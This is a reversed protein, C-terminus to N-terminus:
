VRFQPHEQKSAPASKQAFASPCCSGLFLFHFSLIPFFFSQSLLYVCFTLDYILNYNNIIFHVFLGPFAINYQHPHQYSRRHGYTQIFLIWTPITQFSNNLLQAKVFKFSNQMILFIQMIILKIITKLNYVYM